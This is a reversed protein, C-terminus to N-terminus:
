PEVADPFSLAESRMAFGIVDGHARLRLLSFFGKEDSVHILAVEENHFPCLGTQERGRRTLKSRAPLSM